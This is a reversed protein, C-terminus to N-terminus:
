SRFIRCLLEIGIASTMLREKEDLLMRRTWDVFGGDAIPYSEGSSSAGAIQFCPGNYYALGNLRHMNFGFRATPHEAALQACVEQEMGQLQILLHKPLDLGALDESPRAIRGPWTHGYRALMRDSSGPDRAKVSGRIEERDVGFRSCLAAVARTDSIEVTLDEFVFGITKLSALFSLYVGIHERLARIEFSFSGQDRGGSLLSFLKFHATMGPKRPLPFRTVRQNSCLRIDCRRDIPRQRRRACEIAMGLTPDSTCEFARVTSVVNAQDLGTLVGLAGLPDLPSLEIAEFQSASFYASREIEHLLRGDVDSAESVANPRKFQAPEMGTIRRKLVALLLSHLDSGPLRTLLEVLDPTEVDRAVRQAIQESM